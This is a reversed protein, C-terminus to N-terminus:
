TASGRADRRVRAGGRAALAFEDVNETAMGETWDFEGPLYPAVGAVLLAAACRGPLLAACALAHPGGGSWGSRRSATSGSRTSCSPPTPRWPPSTAARTVRPAGTAPAPRRRGPPTRPRERRRHAGRARAGLRRATTSSSSPATPRALRWSRSRGATRSRARDAADTPEAAMTCRRARRYVADEARRATSRRGRSSSRVDRRARDVPRSPAARRRRDRRLRLARLVRRARPVRDTVDLGLRIAGESSRGRRRGRRALAVPSGAAGAGRRWGCRTCGARGDDGDRRGGAVIGVDDDLEVAIWWPGHGSLRRWAGRRPGARARPEVGFADPEDDLARLRVDRLRGVVIARTARRATM